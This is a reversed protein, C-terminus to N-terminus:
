EKGPDPQTATTSTDTTGASANPDPVESKEAIQTLAQNYKAYAKKADEEAQKALAIVADVHGHCVALGAERLIHTAGNHCISATHDIKGIECEAIREVTAEFQNM